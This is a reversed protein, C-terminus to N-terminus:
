GGDKSNATWWAFGREVAAKRHLEDERSNFGFDQGTMRRLVAALEPGSVNAELAFIIFPIAPRYGITAIAEAAYRRVGPDADSLANQLIPGNAQDGLKGLGIACMRRLIARPHRQLGAILLPAADAQKITGLNTLAALHPLESSDKARQTHDGATTKQLSGISNYAALRVQEDSNVTLKRLAPLGVSQDSTGIAVAAAILEDIPRQPQDLFTVISATAVPDQLQGLTRLAEIRAAPVSNSLTITLEELHNQYATSATRAAALLEGDSPLTDSVAGAAAGVDAAAEVASLAPILHLSAALLGGAILM